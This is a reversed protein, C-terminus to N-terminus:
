APPQNAAPAFGLVEGFFRLEAELADVISEAKRFGHGEGEFPVYEHRIGRAALPELMAEAQNPPVVRDDLGQLLIVPCSIQDAHFLPSRQEYLARDEPYRGVLSDLYRAEFKHTDAALIALDAVGYRSAGVAFDTHFALACLVTFGGASGGRIALRSGDVLGQDRLWRTAAICDDVDALGWQGNLAQRYERGYGTSGRYDVDVVAFGRSTWFRIAPQLQRRAAGTPGGHALVLLPPQEDEPADVEPNAPPYFAGHATADGTTAFTIRRPPELFGPDIGLEGGRRILEVELNARAPRLFVIDPERRHSGAVTILGDRWPELNGFESHEGTYTDGGIQLSDIGAASEAWALQEGVFGFRSQGFVWQPIAVESGVFSRLVSRSSPEGPELARIESWGNADTVYCLRGDPHWTPQFIWEPHAPIGGAVRQPQHVRGQRWDALWLETSDWPMDPHNWAIWTLHRGDPSVRPAAVFDPGSVLVEVSLSGDTAVAVIENDPESGDVHHRERVCIFHAGDPTPRGDAFRDGAALAPEATLHMPEAGPRLISLRQDAFDSYYLAGEAVWWAGGGYEHVRTRINSDSGLPETLSGDASRKVLATRGGEAPRQESWWLESGDVRVEGV